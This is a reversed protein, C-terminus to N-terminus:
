AWQNPKEYSQKQRWNDILLATGEESTIEVQNQWYNQDNPYIEVEPPQTHFTM